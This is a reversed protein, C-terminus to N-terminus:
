SDERERSSEGEVAAKSESRDESDESAAATDATERVLVAQARPWIITGLGLVTMASAMWLTLGAWTVASLADPLPLGSAIYFPTLAVALGGVFLYVGSRRARPGRFVLWALALIAVVVFIRGLVEVLFFPTSGLSGATARALSNVIQDGLFSAILTALTAIYIRRARM